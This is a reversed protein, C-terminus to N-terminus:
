NMEFTIYTVIIDKAWSSLHFLVPNRSFEKKVAQSTTVIDTNTIRPNVNAPFLRWFAEYNQDSKPSNGTHNPTCNLKEVVDAIIESMSMGAAQFIDKILKFFLM